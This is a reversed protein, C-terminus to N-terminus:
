YKLPDYAIENGYRGSGSDQRMVSAMNFAFAIAKLTEMPNWMVLWANIGLFGGQYSRATAAKPIIYPRVTYAYHFFLSLPVMQVCVVM